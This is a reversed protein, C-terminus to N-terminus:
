GQRGARGGVLGECFVAVDEEPSTNPDGDDAAEELAVFPGANRKHAQGNESGNFYATCLGHNNHGNPGPAAQALGLSGASLALTGAIVVALRKRM